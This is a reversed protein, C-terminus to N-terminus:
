KNIISIDNIRKPILLEGYQCIVKTENIVVKLNAVISDIAKVIKGVETYANKDMANEFSVFLKDVNEFQLELPVRIKQYDDENDKNGLDDGFDFPEDDPNALDGLNALKQLNGINTLQALEGITTLKSM